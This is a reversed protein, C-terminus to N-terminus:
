SIRIAFVPCASGCYGCLLCRAHDVRAKDDAVTMADNHCAEACAACGTCIPSFIHINKKTPQPATVELGSFLRINDQVEQETVMGVAVASVGQLNRAFEMAKKYESILNGGALAKMAYVGKGTAAAAAMAQAMEEVTGNILGFGQINILAFIIDIDDRGAAAEVAPRNHTALGVARIVGQRKYSHLCRLAESRDTFVEPGPRAAHLHYIDIYDTNLEQLSKEVSRAMDDYSAATSKTAIVAQPRTHRLAEGLHTQTHYMEATDFFNIGGALASRIIEINEPAPSNRQLPGMPLLGCCLESVTLGTNGLKNYKM